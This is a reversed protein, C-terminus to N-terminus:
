SRACRTTSPPGPPGLPNLETYVDALPAWIAGVAIAVGAMSVITRGRGPVLLVALLIMLPLVFLSGRSQGLVTLSILLAAAALLLGRLLAPVERRGGLILCPIAGMSWLAVNANVYGAPEALRSEHFFQIAQTADQARLLEILGVGAVGLGFAGPWSLQWGARSRGCRSCPSFLTYLVTRNAGTWASGKQGAWAISLYCWCAFAALLGIAILQSRRPRPAGVAMLGAALVALLFIGGPLFTTGEFGGEDAAFWIFMGIVVLLLPFSPSEDLVSGVRERWGM